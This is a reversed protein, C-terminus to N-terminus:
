IPQGGLHTVAKAGQEVGNKLCLELDAGSLYEALFGAVFADGAGTTDIVDVQRAPVHILTDDPGRANKRQARVGEAGCKLIVRGYNEELVQLQELPTEKGSLLAAEEANPFLFSAGKTWALFNQVGVDKIFGASAPDIAVSIDQALAQAMLERVLARPDPVFFSYGSLLLLSVNDLVNKPMDDLCLAENAGRDTYFSREGDPSIMSVLVGTSRNTDAIFQPEVGAKEFQNELAVCDDAGVRAVLKCPLKNAALWVAQNAASGGPKIEIRAKRDSGKRLAGEPAVLVDRMVDGVLLVRDPKPNQENM